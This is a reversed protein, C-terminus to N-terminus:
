PASRQRHARRLGRLLEEIFPLGNLLVVSALLGAVYAGSLPDSKRQLVFRPAEDGLGWLALFQPWHLVALLLVAMLPAMELVSHVQQEVPGVTRRSVAYSLDWWTTAEHVVWALIMVAFLLANVEFFLVLLLPLGLEAFLLLHLMSEKPGATAEICARRHCLWDALGALVWIPVVFYQLLAQAAESRTM